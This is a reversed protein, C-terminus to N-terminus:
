NEGTQWTEQDWQSGIRTLAKDAFVPDLKARTAM